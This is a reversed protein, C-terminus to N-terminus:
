NLFFCYMFFFYFVRSLVSINPIVDFVVRISFPVFFAFLFYWKNKNEILGDIYECIFM